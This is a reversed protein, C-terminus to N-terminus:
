SEKRERYRFLAIFISVLTFSECLVGALSPQIADYILWMPSIILTAYRIIRENCAYTITQLIMAVMPLLSLPGEVTFIYCEVAAFLVVFVAPLIRSRAWAYKEKQTYCVNRTLGLINNALGAPSNLLFFQLSWLIRGAIQITLITNRRKAQFSFINMGMAVFGILQIGIFGWDLTSLDFPM